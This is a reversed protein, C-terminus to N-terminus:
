RKLSPKIDKKNTDIQFNEEILNSDNKDFKPIEFSKLSWWGSEKLKEAGSIFISPNSSLINNITDNLNIPRNKNPFYYEWNNDIFSCIDEEFRCFNNAITNENNLNIKNNKNNYIILQIFNLLNLDTRIYIEEGKNCVSCKFKYFIDGFLQPHKLIKVCEIFLM